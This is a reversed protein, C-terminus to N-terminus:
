TPPSGTTAPMRQAGGSNGDAENWGHDWAAKEAVKGLDSTYPNDTVPRQVATGGYRYQWGEDWARYEKSGPFYQGLGAATAATHSDSKGPM